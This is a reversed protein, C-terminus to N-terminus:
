KRLFSLSIQQAQQTLYSMSAAAARWMLYNAQVHAPTMALLDSLHSIYSPVDVIITESEEVKVINESLVRNIYELWPTNPALQSLQSITMPNYLKSSDRREERFYYKILSNHM